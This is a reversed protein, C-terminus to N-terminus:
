HSETWWMGRGLWWSAERPSPLVCGQRKGPQQLRQGRRRTGVVRNGRWVGAGRHRISHHHEFNKLWGSSAKFKKPTYGLEDSLQRAQERLVADTLAKGQQSAEKVWLWLEAELVPFKYPRPTSLLLSADTPM